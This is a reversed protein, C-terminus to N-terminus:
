IYGISYMNYLLDPTVPQKTEPDAYGSQHRFVEKRHHYIICDTGPVGVREPIEDLFGRLKKFNVIIVELMYM